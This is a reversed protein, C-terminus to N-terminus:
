YNPKLVKLPDAGGYMDSSRIIAKGMNSPGMM